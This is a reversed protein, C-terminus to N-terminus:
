KNNPTQSFLIIFLGLRLLTYTHVRNNLRTYYQEKTIIGLRELLIDLKTNQRAEKRYLLVINKYAEFM